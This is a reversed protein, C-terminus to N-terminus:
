IEGREEKTAVRHTSRQSKQIIVMTTCCIRQYGIAYVDICTLLLANWPARNKTMKKMEERMGSFAGNKTTKCSKDICACYIFM